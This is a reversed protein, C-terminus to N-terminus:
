GTLKGTKDWNWGTGTGTPVGKVFQGRFAAVSNDAAKQIFLGWGTPVGAVWQGLYTNIINNETKPQYYGFGVATTKASDAQGYYKSGDKLDIDIYDTKL